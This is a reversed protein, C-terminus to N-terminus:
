DNRTPQEQSGDDGISGFGREVRESLAKFREDSRLPDMLPDPIVYIAYGDHSAVVQELSAIANAYDGVGIYALTIAGPPITETASRAKLEDLIRQADGPRGQGAYAIALLGVIAPARQGDVAARELDRVADDFRRTVIEVQGLRWRGYAYSPDMQLATQLERIAADYEHNFYLMWALAHRTNLAVPDLALARRAEQVAEAPHGRAVLYNAYTIHALAYSPNLRLARKLAAAAQEWDLEHLTVYGISVYAEALEPDLQMARTAARLALLRTNVSPSAAVFVSGLRNYADALGAYAAACEADEAIAAQFLEMAKAIDSRGARNLFFRGLSVQERVSPAVAHRAAPVATLHSSSPASQNLRSRAVSVFAVSAVIGFLVVAAAFRRVRIQHRTVPASASPGNLVTDFETARQVPAIFRYGRKPVTELYCPQDADDRLAARIQRVCFNVSQDFDVFTDASWLQTRIQERSVLEGPRSVLMVLLRAPQPQLKVPVGSRRLESSQQDLQFPGFTVRGM